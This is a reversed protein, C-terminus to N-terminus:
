LYSAANELAKELLDKTEPTILDQTIEVGDVLYQRETYDVDADYQEIITYERDDVVVRYAETKWTLQASITRADM